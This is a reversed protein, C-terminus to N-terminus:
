QDALIRGLYRAVARVAAMNGEYDMRTPGILGLRGVEGAPVSYGASLVATETMSAVPNESGIRVTIRDGSTQEGLLRLLVVHEELSELIPHLSTHFDAGYRAINAAGAIAIREEADETAADTLTEVVDHVFPQSDVDFAQALDALIGEVDTFAQGDLAAGLRARLDAVVDAPIDRSALIMRQEVRGSDAILVMLVRDPTVPVLEVHRVRSRTLIPYQVMAVQRTLDSLLRVTRQVVDDLDVAGDMLSRIARREPPSLPRITALRDVFLRYGKDTPVRGASTHPAVILGEEELAAMDNRITAPSVGLDHREVLARSGVPEQTNVFDEVIARLVDLRRTDSM